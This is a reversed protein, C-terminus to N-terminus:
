LGLDFVILDNLEKPEDGFGQEVGGFIFIRRGVSCAVQGERGSYFPTKNTDLKKVNITINAKEPCHGNM